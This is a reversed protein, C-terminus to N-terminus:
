INQIFNILNNEKSINMKKKLRYRAIEVSKPSINLLSSIEKTSFNLRLLVALRKELDTLNPFAIKLKMHFDRSIDEIRIYFDKKEQSFTMRQKILLSIEKLKTNKEEQDATKIVDNISTSLKELFIKQENINLAIDMFEKRKAQLKLNLTENEMAINKMELDNIAKESLYLQNQKILMEKEVKLHLKQQRFFIYLFIVVLLASLIIIGPLILNVSYKHEFGANINLVDTTSKSEKLIPINFIKQYLFFLTYSLMGAGIPATIWGLGINSLTKNDIERAGKVIGIGIVTGIVIQTSSVPVLPISPLGISTLLGELWSSSFLFLVFAQSFMVVIATEPTLSLIGDESDNIKSRSYSYIGTAISVGGIAFLVQLGDISFVGFNFILSPAFNSFVGIVNGINNAGLGFAALAIVATLTIRLYTDLKILHIRTRKLIWRMIIFFVIGLLMGIIPSLVWSLIFDYILKWNITQGTFVIWGIIGGFIAQSTSAPLKLKILILIVIAACIAISFAVLPENTNGFSHLTNTTGKGQFIAGLIISLSAILAARKFNLMKSSISVGFINVTDKKGLLWGLFLGSSIYILILLM